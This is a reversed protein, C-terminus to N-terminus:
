EDSEEDYDNADDQFDDEDVYESLIKEVLADIDEGNYEIEADDADIESLLEFDQSDETLTEIFISLDFTLDPDMDEVFLTLAEEFKERAESKKYNTSIYDTCVRIISM